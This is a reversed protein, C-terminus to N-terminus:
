DSPGSAADANRAEIYRVIRTADVVRRLRTIQADTDPQSPRLGMVEVRSLARHHLVVPVQHHRNQIVLNMDGLGDIHLYDAEVLARAAILVEILSSRLLEDDIRM